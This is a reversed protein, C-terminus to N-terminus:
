GVSHVGYFRSNYYTFLLYLSAKKIELLFPTDLRVAKKGDIDASEFSASDTHIQRLSSRRQLRQRIRSLEDDAEESDDYEFENEGSVLEASSSGGGTNSAVEDEDDVAPSHGLIQKLDIKKNRDGHIPVGDIDLEERGLTESAGGHRHFAAGEVDLSM